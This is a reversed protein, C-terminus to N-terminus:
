GMYRQLLCIEKRFFKRHELLSIHFNKRRQPSASLRIEKWLPLEPDGTSTRELAVVRPQCLQPPLALLQSVGHDAQVGTWQAWSHNYSRLSQFPLRDDM